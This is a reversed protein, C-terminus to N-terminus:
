LLAGDPKAVKAARPKTISKKPVTAGSSDQVLEMQKVPLKAKLENKKVELDPKLEGPVSAWADQLEELTKAGELRETMALILAEKQGQKYQEFEEMEESSAIEGTAGYGLFALARGVAITELKEFGKKDKNSGLSHGIAEASSPDNKDKLIRARFLISGDAQFTPTTEILGRPNDRRFELMRENVKAYANGQLEM